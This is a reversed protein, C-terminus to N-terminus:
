PVAQTVRTGRECFQGSAIVEKAQASKKYEKDSIVILARLHPVGDRLGDLWRKYPALHNAIQEVTTNKFPHMVIVLVPSAHCDEAYKEAKVLAGLFAKRDTKRECEVIFVLQGKTDTVTLDPKYGAAVEEGRSSIRNNGVCHPLRKFDSDNM